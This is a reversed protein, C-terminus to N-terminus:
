QAITPVHDILQSNSSQLHFEDQDNTEQLNTEDAQEILGHGFSVLPDSAKGEDFGDESSLDENKMNELNIGPTPPVQYNATVFDLEEGEEDLNDRANKQAAMKELNDVRLKEFRQFQEKIM